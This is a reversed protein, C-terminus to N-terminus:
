FGPYRASPAPTAETCLNGALTVSWPQGFMVLDSMLDVEGARDGVIAVVVVRGPVARIAPMAVCDVALRVTIQVSLYRVLEFPLSLRAASRGPPPADLVIVAGVERIGAPLDVRVQTVTVPWNTTSTMPVVYTFEHASANMTFYGRGSRIVAVAVPPPVDSSAYPLDPRVPRRAQVAVLGLVLAFLAALALGRRTPRSRDPASLGITDLPYDDLSIDVRV